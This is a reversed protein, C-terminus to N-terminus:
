IDTATLWGVILERLRERHWSFSHNAGEIEVYRRPQGARQYLTRAQSVPIWEDQSGHVILLPRPSILGAVDVPQPAAAVEDRQRALDEPGAAVFRAIERDIEGASLVTARLDAVAGFAAVARLRQDAAAALVAAWGGLSHGAVAIRDPDVSPHEGSRLFDIAAAVDSTITRLDYRGGSGWCGRYHFALANWGRDRLDAALDLNKEVGPCGHLMVATPKPEGGRALYLVGILEHGDSGFTVGTLGAHEGLRM